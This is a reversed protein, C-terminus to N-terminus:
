KRGKIGDPIAIREVLKNVYEGETMEGALSVPSYIMRHALVDAAIYRINDPLVYSKGDIYALAQSM